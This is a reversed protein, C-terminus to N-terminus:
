EEQLWAEIRGRLEPNPAHRGLEIKYIHPVSIKLFSALEVDRWGLIKRKHRMREGLTADERLIGSPKAKRAKPWLFGSKYKIM